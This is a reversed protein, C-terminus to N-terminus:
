ICDVVMPQVLQIPNIILPTANFTDVQTIHTTNTLIDSMNIVENFVEPWYQQGLEIGTVDKSELHWSWWYDGTTNEYSPNYFPKFGESLDVRQTSTLEFLTNADHDIIAKELSMYDAIKQFQQHEAKLHSILDTEYNKINTDLNGTQVANFDAFLDSLGLTEMHTKVQSMKESVLAEINSFDLSTIHTLGQYIEEFGVQELSDIQYFMNLHSRLDDLSTPQENYFNFSFGHDIKAFNYHDGCDILGVNGSHGDTDHIFQISWIADMFGHLPKGNINMPFDCGYPSYSMTQENYTYNAYNSLTNFNDLLKSGTLLSHDFDNIVMETRPANDGLFLQYLGGAVYEKIIAEPACYHGQKLLWKEQNQDKYFGGISIGDDKAKYLTFDSFKLLDNEQKFSAM